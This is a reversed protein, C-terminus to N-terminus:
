PAATSGPTATPGAVSASPSIGAPTPATSAAPSFVPTAAVSAGPEETPAQSPSDLEETPEEVPAEDPADSAGSPDTSAPESPQPTAPSPSRDAPPTAPSTPVPPAMPVTPSRPTESSTMLNLPLAILAAVACVMGVGAATRVRRRRTATRRIEEYRGPAAGLYTPTPALLILLPDDPDHDPGPPDFEPDDDFRTTM